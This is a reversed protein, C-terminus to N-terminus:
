VKILEEIEQNLMKKKIIYDSFFDHERKFEDELETNANKIKNEREILDNELEICREQL